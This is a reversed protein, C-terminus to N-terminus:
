SGLGLLGASRQDALALEEDRIELEHQLQEIVGLVEAERQNYQQAIRMEISQLHAQELRPKVQIFGEVACCM